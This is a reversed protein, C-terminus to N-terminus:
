PVECLKWLPYGDVMGVRMISLGSVIQAEHKKLWRGLRENSVVNASHSAAVALLANHFDPRNIAASVVERMTHATGTGLAERWQLIVTLLASRVPDDERTKIITDCPDAHGLWLLPERVRRSWDAFGGLPAAQIRVGALHWARLVTLAAAVFQGRQTRVKDLINDTFRRLEPRECQADITCIMSRRTLDGVITLNNGTAFIAANVLTEVNKSLGLLRINLKQQTLAQCLFVSQLPHECNDLSIAVDGALLAAGLRKELEEETRSQSIVPMPQRTALVAAIDILLSKGTGAMPSTFAHLPAAAMSRRDLITLLASLAVARDAPAVFPFSDLLRDLLALAQAADDKSPHQPIPPFSESGSKFLLGSALDYGPTECISGDRRLFPTKTIGSLIPLKWSGGRSLLADAVENPADVPVFGKARLDHKLFRAACTLAEVLWPRTLPTVHWDDNPPITPLLLPRVLLGGRQYVDRGLALLADEAENVVRPLEGHTLIIQPWDGTPATREGTAAARKHARWKEYSRNVETLLRDAYKAGIGNPHRALEAAIQEATQGQGALHWLVAQFLESREGEPAGHEILSAYDLDRPQQQAANNFDLGDAPVGYGHRALLRNILDDLPPLVDVHGIELGSVTIYRPTDRYLELGAGTKRDFTFKRHTEPGSTTGIIRAGAGSVTREQYAGAAEELLQLAWRIPADHEDIVHDLDIAGIKSRFLMYGIGDADGRAVAAVADDYSGWTSPDNSRANRKPDCAQRPPKTWKLKGSKNTRLEWPWVVWRKETTLPQLAPPLHALDGNYTRPKDTM